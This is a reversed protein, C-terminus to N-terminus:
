DRLFPPSPTGLRPGVVFLFGKTDERIGDFTFCENYLASNHEGCVVVNGTQDSFALTIGHGGNAPYEPLECVASLPDIM